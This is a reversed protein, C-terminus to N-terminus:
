IKLFSVYVFVNIGGKKAVRFRVTFTQNMNDLLTIFIRDNKLLPLIAGFLYMKYGHYDYLRVGDTIRLGFLAKLMETVDEEPLNAMRMDIAARGNLIMAAIRDNYSSARMTLSNVVDTCVVDYTSCPGCEVEYETQVAEKTFAALARVDIKLTRDLITSVGGYNCLNLLSYRDSVDIDIVNGFPDWLVTSAKLARAADKVKILDVLQIKM